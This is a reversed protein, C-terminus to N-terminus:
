SSYRSRMYVPTDVTNEEKSTAIRKSPRDQVQRVMHEFGPIGAKCCIHNCKKKDACTHNCLLVVSDQSSPPSKLDAMTMFLVKDKTKPEETVKFAEAPIEPELDAYSVVGSIEDVIRLKRL